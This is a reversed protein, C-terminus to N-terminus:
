RTKRENPQHPEFEFPQLWRHLLRTMLPMVIWTLLAVIGIAILFSQAWFPWAPAVRGVGVAVLMSTPYVGILTVVAMKWLPPPTQASRFWAELGHLQRYVPEGITLERARKEWAQFMPTAYFADREQESAFTRLIGFERTDSGPPPVLMSAGLVGGHAFSAQFFERLGQQFEVECGPRVRRTIAVHIAMSKQEPM